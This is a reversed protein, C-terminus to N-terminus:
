VRGFIETREDTLQEDLPYRRMFRPVLHPTGGLEMFDNSFVAGYRISGKELCGTVEMFDTHSAHQLISWLSRLTTLEDCEDRDYWHRSKHMLGYLQVALNQTCADGYFCGHVRVSDANRLTEALRPWDSPAVYGNIMLGPDEFDDHYEFTDSSFTREEGVLYKGCLSLLIELDSRHERIQKSRYPTPSVGSCIAYSNENGDVLRLIRDSFARKAAEDPSLIVSEPHVIFDFHTM